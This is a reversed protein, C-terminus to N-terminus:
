QTECKMRRIIEKKKRHYMKTKRREKKNGIDRM